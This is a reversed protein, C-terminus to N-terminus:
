RSVETNIPIQIRNYPCTAFTNNSKGRVVEKNFIFSSPNVRDLM